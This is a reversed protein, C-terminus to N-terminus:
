RQTKHPLYKAKVALLLFFIILKTKMFHHVDHMIIFEHIAGAPQQSRIYKLFLQPNSGEKFHSDFAIHFDLFFQFL